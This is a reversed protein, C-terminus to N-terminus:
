KRDFICTTRFVLIAPAASADNGNIQSYIIQKSVVKKNLSVEPIVMTLEHYQSSTPEDAEIKASATASIGILSRQTEAPTIPNVRVARIKLSTM